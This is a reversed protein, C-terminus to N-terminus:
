SGRERMEQRRMPMSDILGFIARTPTVDSRSLKVGGDKGVLVARFADNAVGYKRRLATAGMGVRPGYQTEVRDGAVFVVVMDRELIDRSASAIASRQAALRADGASPAFVLLPRKSWRYKSMAANASSSPALAIPFVSLAAILARRSFM